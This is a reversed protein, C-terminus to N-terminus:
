IGGRGGDLYFRALNVSSKIQRKHEQIGVIIKNSNAANESGSNLDAIDDVFKLAKIAVTGMVYGQGEACNDDLSCNNLVPGLVTGQKVINNIQVPETNGVPTRVTIMAKKNLQFVLYLMDDKVGCRWLCNIHDELWLSDFCKEIDYFTIWLEKGLYKSHDIMGRLIFLNDAVGKGKVGGTQFQTMNEELHPTIRNKLLKEFIISQVPILFIGHYSSLKRTSGTKKKLTQICM